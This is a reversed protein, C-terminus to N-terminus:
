EIKNSGRALKLIPELDENEVSKSIEDFADVLQYFNIRHTFADVALRHAYTVIWLLEHKEINM